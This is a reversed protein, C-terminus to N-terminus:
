KLSFSLKEVSKTLGVAYDTYGGGSANNWYAGASHAVHLGLGV